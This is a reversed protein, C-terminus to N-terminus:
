EEGEEDGEARGPKSTKEQEGEEGEKGGPEEKAHGLLGAIHAAEPSDAGVNKMRPSQYPGSGSNNMHHEIRYGGGMQPHIEIHRVNKM